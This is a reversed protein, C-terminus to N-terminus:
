TYLKKVKEPMHEACFYNDYSGSSDKYVAPLKCKVCNKGSLPYLKVKKIIQNAPKQGNNKREWSLITHYHSKYKVGKSGLYDNLSQIREKTGQETFLEVLKQYQEETLYVFELYKKKKEIEKEKRNKETETETDSAEIQPLNSAIHKCDALLEIFGANVLPQLDINKKIPLQQKLYLMDGPIIPDDEEITSALLWLFILLLKSDDQL